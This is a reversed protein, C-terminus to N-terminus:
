KEKFGHKLRAIGVLILYIFLGLSVIYTFFALAPAVHAVYLCLPDCM